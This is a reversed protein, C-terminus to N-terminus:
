FGPNIIIHMILASQGGESFPKLMKLSTVPGVMAGLFYWTQWHLPFLHILVARHMDAAHVFLLLVPPAIM